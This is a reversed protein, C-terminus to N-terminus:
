KNAILDPNILGYNPIMYNDYFHRLLYDLISVIQDIVPEEIDYMNDISDKVRDAFEKDIEFLIDM